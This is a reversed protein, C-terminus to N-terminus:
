KTPLKIDDLLTNLSEIKDAFTLTEEVINLSNQGRLQFKAPNTQIHKFLADTNIMPQDTFEISISKDNIDLRTIGLQKARLRLRAHEILYQASEPLSGFRDILEIVITNINNQQACKALRQYYSLRVQPDYIYNDPLLAAENFEIKIREDQSDELQLTQGNKIMDVARDLLELYYSMGIQQIQGSQEDGLIEGAGRNQLDLEALKFGDNTYEM